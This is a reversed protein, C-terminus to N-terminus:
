SFIIDPLCSDAGAYIFMNLQLEMAKVHIHSNVLVLLANCGRKMEGASWKFGAVFWDLFAEVAGILLRGLFPNM